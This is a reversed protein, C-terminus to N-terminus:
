VMAFDPIRSRPSVDDRQEDYWKIIKCLVAYSERTAVVEDTEITNEIFYQNLKICLDRYNQAVWLHERKIMNYDIDYFSANSPDCDGVTQLVKKIDRIIMETRNKIEKPINLTVDLNFIRTTLEQKIVWLRNVMKPITMAGNCCPVVGKRVTTYDLDPFELGTNVLLSYDGRAVPDSVKEGNIVYYEYNLM